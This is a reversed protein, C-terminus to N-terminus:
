LGELTMEQGSADYQTCLKSAWTSTLVPVTFLRMGLTPSLVWPRTAQRPRNTISLEFAVDRTVKFGLVSSSSVIQCARM